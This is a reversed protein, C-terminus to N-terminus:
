DMYLNNYVREYEEGEILQGKERLEEIEAKYKNDAIQNKTLKEEQNEKESM